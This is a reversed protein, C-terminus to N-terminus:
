RGAIKRRIWLMGFLGLGLALTLLGVPLGVVLYSDAYNVNHHGAINYVLLCVIALFTGGFFGVFGLSLSLLLSSFLGFDGLPIGFLVFNSKKQQPAAFGRNLPATTSGTLKTM